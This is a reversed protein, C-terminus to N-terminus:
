INRSSTRKFFFRNKNKKKKIFSSLINAAGADKCVILIKKKVLRKDLIYKM